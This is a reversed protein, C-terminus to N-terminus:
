GSLSSLLRPCIMVKLFQVTYYRAQGLRKRLSKSTEEGGALVVTDAKIQGASGLLVGGGAEVIQQASPPSGDPLTPIIIKECDNSTM